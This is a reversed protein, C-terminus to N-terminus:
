AQGPRAVDYWRSGPMSRLKNQRSPCGSAMISTLSRVGRTPANSGITWRGGPRCLSYVQSWGDRIMVTRSIIWANACHEQPSLELPEQLASRRQCWEDFTQHLAPLCETGRGRLVGHVGFADEDVDFDPLGSRKSNIGRLFDDFVGAIVRMQGQGGIQVVAPSKAHYWLVVAWHSVSFPVAERMARPMLEYDKLDTWRVEFPPRARVFEDLMPLDCGQPIRRRVEDDGGHFEM